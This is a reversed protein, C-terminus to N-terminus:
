KIQAKWIKREAKKCSKIAKIKQWNDHKVKRM